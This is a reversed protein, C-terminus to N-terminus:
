KKVREVKTGSTNDKNTNNGAEPSQQNVLYLITAAVIMMLLFNPRMGVFRLDRWQGCVTCYSIHERYPNEQFKCPASASPKGKADEHYYPCKFDM